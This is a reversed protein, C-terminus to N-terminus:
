YGGNETADNMRAIALTVHKSKTKVALLTSTTAALLAAPEAVGGAGVAARVIESRQWNGPARALEHASFTRLSWDRRECVSVLGPEEARRDITALAAVALSSLRERDLTADILQEIEEAPAGGSCGVGLMLTPPRYVASRGVLEAPLPLIRDSIVIAAAPRAAALAEITRYAVLNPPADGQLWDDGAVDQFIGVPEGNVLAAAVATFASSPEAKWGLSSGIMEPAPTGALESATTVVAVAGLGLALRRAIENAGGTHGSLLSIVFRGADDVAVVAPDRHKDRLNPAVLRVAAGTAMVLVLVRKTQFVEAIVVGAKGTYGAAPPACPAQPADTLNEIATALFREPIYAMADPLIRAIRLATRAGLASVAVVAAGAASRHGAFKASEGGASM